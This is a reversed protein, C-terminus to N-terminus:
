YRECVINLNRHKHGSNKEPTLLRCIATTICAIQKEQLNWDNITWRLGEGLNDATHRETMVITQLM